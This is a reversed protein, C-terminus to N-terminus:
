SLLEAAIGYRLNYFSHTVTDRAAHDLVTDITILAAPIIDARTAPLHPVAMREHLPLQMLKSKLQTIEQQHLVPSRDDITQGIQSALVARTVTFAGGTVILPAACPEFSFGSAKLTERVHAEISAETEASIAADRDSIFQETLRVAGLQLSLAQDITGHNFHILELSGGGIDMQIFSKTGSIKPDCGLGKGIYTAEEHGSLTQIEIGTADNVLEIFQVANTADRVASTAVIRITKPQYGQALRALETITNCGAAMSSESLSPLAQSIGSSIRTEITETFITEVSGATAGPKAVLLKISNSGVDIVAVIENTPM